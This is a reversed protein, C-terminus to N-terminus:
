RMRIGRRRGRRRGRKPNGKLPADGEARGTAQPSSTWAMRMSEGCTSWFSRWLIRLRCHPVSDMLQMIRGNVSQYASLKEPEPIGYKTM